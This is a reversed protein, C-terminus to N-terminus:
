NAAQARARAERWGRPTLEAVEGIPTEWIRSLVDALYEQPNVGQLKCTQILSYLGAARKGGDVSGTFLWNKRGIAVTRMDREVANNDIPVRSDWAFVQLAKWRNLTYGVAKGLASSPLATQELQDLRERIEALIPVTEALRVETREKPARDRIREEIRYLDRIRDIVWEAEQSKAKKAKWFYRRAHAWCGAELAGGQRFVENYGAYGDVVLVGFYQGFFSLPGDRGRTLTFDYVVEEQDGHAAWLFCEKRGGGKQNLQLVVHTDDSGIVMSQLVSARQAQLVPQLLDFSDAVADCLTSRSLEVGERAFIQSQRALPLHDGYKSVVIHALLSPGLRGKEVPRSPLPPRVVGDQCKRCAYKVRAIERIFFRAPHIGLEETVDEGCRDMAQGCACTREAEDPHIEERQRSLHEPLPKRGHPGKRRERRPRAGEDDPIEVPPSEAAEGFLGLDLQDPHVKESRPGFLIHRLDAIKERLLRIELDRDKLADRLEFAIAKLSEHERLLETPTVAM